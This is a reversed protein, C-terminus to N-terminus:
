NPMGTPSEFTHNLQAGDVTVRLEIAVQGRGQKFGYRALKRLLNDACRMVDEWEDNVMKTAAEKNEQCDVLM